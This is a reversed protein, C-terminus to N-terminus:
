TFKLIMDFKNVYFWIYVDFISKLNLHSMENVM